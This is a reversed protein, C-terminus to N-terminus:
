ATNAPTPATPVAKIPIKTKLSDALKQFSNKMKVKIIEITPNFKTESYPQFILRHASKSISESHSMSEELTYFDYQLM